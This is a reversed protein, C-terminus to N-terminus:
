IRDVRSLWVTERVMMAIQEAKQAWLVALIYNTNIELHVPVDQEGASALHVCFLKLEDKPVTFCSSVSRNLHLLTTRGDAILLVALEVSIHEQKLRVSAILPRGERVDM